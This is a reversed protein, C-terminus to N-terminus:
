CPRGNCVYVREQIFIKKPSQVSFYYIIRTGYFLSNFGLTSYYGKYIFTDFSAFTGTFFLSVSQIFFLFSFTILNNSHLLLQIKNHFQQWIFDLVLKTSVHILFIIIQYKSVKMCVRWISFLKLNQPMVIHYSLYGKSKESSVCNQKNSMLIINHM